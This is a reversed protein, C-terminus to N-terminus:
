SIDHGIGQLLGGRRELRFDDAELSQLLLALVFFREIPRRSPKGDIRFIAVQQQRRRGAQTVQAPDILGEGRKVPQFGAVRHKATKVFFAPKAEDLELVCRIGDRGQQAGHVDVGGEGGAPRHQFAQVAHGAVQRLGAQGSVMDGRQLGQRRFHHGRRGQKGVAVQFRGFVNDAGEQQLRAVVRLGHAQQGADAQGTIHEVVGFGEEFGYQFEFGVVARRTVIIRLGQDLALFVDQRRHLDVPQQRLIRFVAVVAGQGRGGGHPQTVIFPRDGDILVHQGVRRGSVM